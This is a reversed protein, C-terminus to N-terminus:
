MLNMLQDKLEKRQQRYTAEDIEGKEFAEDLEAIAAVLLKQSDNMPNATSASTTSSAATAAATARIREKQLDYFLYGGGAIVILIGLGLILFRNEVLFSEDDEVVTTESSNRPTGTSANAAASFQPTDDTDRLTFVIAEGAAVNNKVYGEYNGFQQIETVGQPTFGEGEFALFRNEATYVLVEEVDFPLEHTFTNEGDYETVFEVPSVLTQDPFVVRNDILFFNGEDDRETVVQEGLNAPILAGSTNEPLPIRLVPGDEAANGVYVRDSDNTFFYYNFFDAVGEGTVADGIYWVAQLQLVTPDNTREYIPLIVDNLEADIELGDLRAFFTVDDYEVTFEIFGNEVYPIDTFTVPETSFMATAEFLQTVNNQQAIQISAATIELAQPVIGGETRNEITVNVTTTETGEPFRTETSEQVSFNFPTQAEINTEEFVLFDGLGRILRIDVFPYEPIERQPSLAQPTYVLFTEVPYALTFTINNLSEAPLTYDIIVQTGEAGAPLPQTGQVLPTTGSSDVVFADGVVINSAGSPLTLTIGQTDPEAYPENTNNTIFFWSQVSAEEATIDNFIFWVRDIKVAADAFARPRAETPEETEQPGPDAQADSTSSDTEVNPTNDVNTQDNADSVDPETPEETEQPQQAASSREQLQAPNPQFTAEEVTEPESSTSIACGAM